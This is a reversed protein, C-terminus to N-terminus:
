KFGKIVMWTHNASAYEFRVSINHFSEKCWIILMKENKGKKRRGSEFVSEEKIAPSHFTKDRTNEGRKQERGINSRLRYSGKESCYPELLYYWFLISAYNDNGSGYTFIRCNFAIVSAM